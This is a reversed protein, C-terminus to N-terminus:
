FFVCFFFLFTTYYIEMNGLKKEENNKSLIRVEEAAVKCFPWVCEFLEDATLRCIKKLTNLWKIPNASLPTLNTPKHFCNGTLGNWTM